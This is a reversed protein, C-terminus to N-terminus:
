APLAAADPPGTPIGPLGAVVAPLPQRTPQLPSRARPLFLEVSTGEGLRSTLRVHGGSQRVFGYVSSLGLGSGKAHGKTTFFPEFARDIVEQPMGAGTDRVAIMVYDGAIAAEPGVMPEGDALQRDSTEISVTGGSPMADRANVILNAVASQLQARDVLTLGVSAALRERLDLGGGLTRRMLDIVGRLLANVDTLLPNLPQQRAYALLQHTLDAAHTAAWLADSLLSRQESDLDSEELLQLNGIVIGLANNFDHAIGGTLQGLLELKQAQRLREETQRRASIDDYLCVVEGGPLRYIRCERWGALPPHNFPLERLTQSQGTLAVFRCADLLGSAAAEPFVETLKRGIIQERSLHDIAAAARNVDAFEFDETGETPRLVALGSNMREVLERFRRESTQLGRVMPETVRFFLTTGLAVLVLALGVVAGGARVFPKRLEAVDIKAVIGANLAPMPRYAALVDAGRYDLGRLSGAEGRLARRMPEGRVEDWAIEVRPEKPAHHDLVLYSIRDGVHEGLVVGGTEGIGRSHQRADRLVQLALERVRAQSVGLRELGAVLASVIDAQSQALDSLRQQQQKLTMEYLIGTAVGGLSLAISTLIAILLLVRRDAM